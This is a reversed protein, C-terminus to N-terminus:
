PAKDELVTALRLVKSSITIGSTRTASLNVTLRLKNREIAFQVLGGRRAFGEADSMTLIPLRALQPAVALWRNHESPAVYLAHCFRADAPNSLRQLIFKRGQWTENALLGDLLAPVPGSGLVGVVLAADASAFAKAPWETFAITNCLAAAKMEHERTGNADAAHTLPGAVAVLFASLAAQGMLRLIEVSHGGLAMDGEQPPQM